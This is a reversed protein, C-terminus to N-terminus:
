RRGFVEYRLSRSPPGCKPPSFTRSNGRPSTAAVALRHLSSTAPIPAEAARPAQYLEHPFTIAFPILHEPTSYAAKNELLPTGRFGRHDDLWYFRSTDLLDNRHPARRAPRGVNTSAAMNMSVILAYLSGWGGRFSSPRPWPGGRQIYSPFATMPSTHAPTHLPFPDFFLSTVNPLVSHRRPHQLFSSGPV